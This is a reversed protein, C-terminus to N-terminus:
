KHDYYPLLVPWQHDFNYDINLHQEDVGTSILLKLCNNEQM